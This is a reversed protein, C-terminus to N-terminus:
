VLDSIDVGSDNDLDLNEFGLPDDDIKPLDYGQLDVGDFLRREEEMAEKIYKLRAALLRFDMTVRRRLPNVEDWWRNAAQPERLLDMLKPIILEEGDLFVRKMRDLSDLIQTEILGSLFAEEMEMGDLMRSLIDALADVDIKAVFRSLITLVNGRIAPAEQWVKARSIPAAVAHELIKSVNALEGIDEIVKDISLNDSATRVIGLSRSLLDDFGLPDEEIIIEERPAGGNLLSILYKVEDLCSEAKLDIAAALRAAMGQLDLELRNTGVQPLTEEEEVAQEYKDVLGAANFLSSLMFDIKRHPEEFEKPMTFSYPLYQGNAYLDSCVISGLDGMEEPVAHNEALERLQYLHGRLTVAMDRLEVFGSAIM